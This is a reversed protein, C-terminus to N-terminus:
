KKLKYVLFVLSSLSGLLMDIMTDDIAGVLLNGSVDWVGQTNMDFVIYLGYELLEFFGLMGVVIFFAMVKPYEVNLKNIYEYLIVVILLPIITHLIKDYYFFHRYFYISGILNLWLSIYVLFKYSSTINLKDIAKSAFWGFFFSFFFATSIIYDEFFFAVFGFVFMSTLLLHRLIAKKIM